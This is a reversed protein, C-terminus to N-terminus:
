QTESECFFFRQWIKMMPKLVENFNLVFREFIHAIKLDVETKKTKALVPPLITFFNM